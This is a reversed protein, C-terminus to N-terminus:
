EPRLLERGLDDWHPNCEEILAIKWDRRWRKISKERAIAAGVLEHEEWWVLRTVSYKRVFKTEGDRHERVRRKLDNTVGCYLTGERQSALLYVFYRHDRSIGVEKRM